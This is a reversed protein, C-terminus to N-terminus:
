NEPDALYAKRRRKLARSGRQRVTVITVVEGQSNLYDTVEQWSLDQFFRLELIQRDKENLSELLHKLKLFNQEKEQNHETEQPSVKLEVLESNPQEKRKQRNMERIVNYATVRIWAGPNRIEEGSDILKVGRLYVESIVDELCTNNLHFQKLTRKIFYRLNLYSKKGEPNAVTNYNILYKIALEFHKQCNAINKM